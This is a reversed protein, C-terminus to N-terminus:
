KNYSSFVNNTTKITKKKIIITKIPNKEGHSCCSQNRLYCM